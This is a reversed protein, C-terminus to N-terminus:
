EGVSDPSVANTAVSRTVWDDGRAEKLGVLEDARGTEGLEVVKLM